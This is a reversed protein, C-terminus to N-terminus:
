QQGVKRKIHQIDPKELLKRFKPNSMLTDIDGSSVAEMIVADQLLEQIDPDNQLSLIMQMIQQDSTISEQLIKLEKDVSTNTPRVTKGTATESPKVRILRIKSENIEITGLSPSLVTYVGERFSIIEGSLVSGDILEVEAPGDAFLTGCLFVFLIFFYSIPSKSM